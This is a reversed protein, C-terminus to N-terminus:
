RTPRLSLPRAGLARLDGEDHSAMVLTRGGLLRDVLSRCRRRADPDLGAFPEDLLVTNSPSLLARVLEVRRRQGGSLEGVPRLPDVGPLAEALTREVEDRARGRACLLVNQLAGMEDVLLSEQTQVSFPAGGRLEGATPALVGDLLRLFTTKGSGSADNLCARSGPALELDLGEIVSPGGYSFRLGRAVISTLPPLARGEGGGGRGLSMLSLSRCLPGSAELLAVVLAESLRSALIVLATWAFVDSTELLLKAQFVREGVSGLSSGVLEAAVAAKWAMGVASRSAAVVFPLVQPWFSALLRRWLPVRMVSLLSSMGRDLESLGELVAFLLPPFCALFVAAEAVRAAGFWLLLLVIVCVIPASKLVTVGPLVVRRVAPFADLTWGLPLALLLSAAFGLAVHALTASGVRVLTGAAALRALSGLVALPGPLLLESSVLLSAVQWAGLWLLCAALWSALRHSRSGRM